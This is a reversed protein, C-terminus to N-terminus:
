RELGNRALPELQIENAKPQASALSAGASKSLEANAAGLQADLRKWDPEGPIRNLADEVMVSLQRSAEDNRPTFELSSQTLLAHEASVDGNEARAALAGPLNATTAQVGYQPAIMGDGSSIRDLADAAKDPTLRDGMTLLAAMDTAAKGYTVDSPPGLRAIERTAQEVTEAGGMKQFTNLVPAALNVDVNQVHSETSRALHFSEHAHDLLKQAVPHDLHTVGKSMADVVPQEHPRLKDVFEMAVEHLSTDPGYAEHIGKNLLGGLYDGAFQGGVSGFVTGAYAGPVNGFFGGATGGIFGGVRLGILAGMAKVSEDEAKVVDGKGLAWIVPSVEAAMTVRGAFKGMEGLHEIHEGHWDKIADGTRMVGVAIDRSFPEKEEHLTAEM